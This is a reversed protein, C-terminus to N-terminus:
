ANKEEKPLAGSAVEARPASETVLTGKQQAMGGGRRPWLVAWSLERQGLIGQPRFIMLLILMVGIVLQSMGTPLLRYSFIVIERAELIRLWEPLLTMIVAGLVSGTISGTGGLVVMV